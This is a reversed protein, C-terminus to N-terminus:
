GKVEWMDDGDKVYVSGDSSGIVASDPNIDLGDLIVYYNIGDYSGVFVGDATVFDKMVEGDGIFYIKGGGVYAVSGLGNGFHLPGLKEGDRLWFIGGSSQVLYENDNLFMLGQVGDVSFLFSRSDKEFDVLYADGAIVDYAIAKSSDSNIFVLNEEMGKTFTAMRTDGQWLTMYGTENDAAMLFGSGLDCAEVGGYCKEFISEDIDASSEALAPVTELSVDFYSTEGNLVDAFGEQAYYGSKEIYFTYSGTEFEGACEAESCPMEITVQGPFKVTYPLFEEDARFVLNGKPAKCFPIALVILLVLVILSLIIKKKNM